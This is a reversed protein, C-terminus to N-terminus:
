RVTSHEPKAIKNLCRKRAVTSNYYIIIIIKGALALPLTFNETFMNCVNWAWRNNPLSVAAIAIIARWDCLILSRACECVFIFRLFDLQYCRRRCRRGDVVVVFIIYFRRCRDTLDVSISTCNKGKHIQNRRACHCVADREDRVIFSLMFRGVISMIAIWQSTSTSLALRVCNQQSNRFDTMLHHVLRGNGCWNTLFMRREIKMNWNKTQEGVTYHLRRRLM